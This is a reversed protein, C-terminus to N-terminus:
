VKRLIMVNWLFNSIKQRCYVDWMVKDSDYFYNIPNESASGKQLGKIISWKAMDNKCYSWLQM